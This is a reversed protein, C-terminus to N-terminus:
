KFHKVIINKYNDTLDRYNDSLQNYQNVIDINLHNSSKSNNNKSVLEKYQQVLQTYKKALQHHKIVIDSTAQLNPDVRKTIIDDYKIKIETHKNVLKQYKNTLDNYNSALEQNKKILPGIQSYYKNTLDEHVIKLKALESQYTDILKDQKVLCDRITYSEVCTTKSNNGLQFKKLKSRLNNSMITRPIGNLNWSNSNFTNSGVPYKKALGTHRIRTYFEPLYNKNGINKKM